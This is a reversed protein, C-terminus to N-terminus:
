GLSVTVEEVPNGKSITVNIVPTRNKLSLRVSTMALPL